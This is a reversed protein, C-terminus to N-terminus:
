HFCNFIVMVEELIVTDVIEQALFYTEQFVQDDLNGWKGEEEEVMMREM